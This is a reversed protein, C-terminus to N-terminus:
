KSTDDEIALCDKLLRAAHLQVSCNLRDYDHGGEVLGWSAINFEEEVRAAEIASPVDMSWGDKSELLLALAIWFSKAEAAMSHMATLHWADLSEVFKRCAQRLPEPHPLQTGKALWMGEIHGVAVAPAHGGSWAEIWAHLDKWATQQRRYLIKDEVPDAWYCVTDTQLYRLIEERYISTANTTQDISTSVLTMLPMQNPRIADVVQCNWEAALAYALAESPVALSHGMPTRLPREDLRVCYWSSEDSRISSSGPYRPQLMSQLRERENDKRRRQVGSASDTGDVGASIPSEQSSGRSSATDDWVPPCPTVDVNVYFRRRAERSSFNRRQLGLPSSRPVITTAEIIRAPLQSRRASLLLQRM